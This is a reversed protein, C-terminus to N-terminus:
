LEQNIKVMRKIINSTSEHQGSLVKEIDAFPYIKINDELLSIKNNNEIFEIADPIFNNSLRSGLFDVEKKILEAISIPLDKDVLTLIVVRGAPSVYHLTDQIVKKSGTAEIVVSSGEGDTFKKIEENVDDKNANIIKDAGLKQALKLSNENIDVAIVKAGQSKAVLTVMIGITGVGLVTVVDDKKVRARHNAEFGISLPEALTAMKLDISSNVKHINKVPLKVYEQFGGDIHIGFVKMNRCVNPRGINCAYCKGCNLVPDIVVHDGKKFISNNPKEVVGSIEHGMVRPYTIFPQDGQYGHVDSGCIGGYAIKVLVENDELKPIEKKILEIKKPSQLIAAKM